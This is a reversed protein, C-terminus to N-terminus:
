LYVVKMGNIWLYLADNSCINQVDHACKQIDVSINTSWSYILSQSLDKTEEFLIYIM